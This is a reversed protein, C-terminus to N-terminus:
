FGFHFLAFSFEFLVFSQMRLIRAFRVLRGVIFLLDFLSNQGFYEVALEFIVTVCGVHGIDLEALVQTTEIGDDFFSSGRRTLLGLHSMLVICENLDEKSKKLVKKASIQHGILSAPIKTEFKACTMQFVVFHLVYEQQNHVVDVKLQENRKTDHEVGNDHSNLVM